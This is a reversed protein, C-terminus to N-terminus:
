ERECRTTVRAEHFPCSPAAISQNQKRVEFQSGLYLCAFAFGYDYPSMAILVARGSSVM